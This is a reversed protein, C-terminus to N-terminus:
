ADRLMVIERLKGDLQYIQRYKEIWLSVPNSGSPTYGGWPEFMSEISPDQNVCIRAAKSNVAFLQILDRDHSLITDSLPFRNARLWEWVSDENVKQMWLVPGFIGERVLSDSIGVGEAIAPSFFPGNANGGCLIRGKIGRISEQLSMSHRVSFLPGVDVEPELPHGVRLNMFSEVLADRVKDYFTDKILVGNVSTCTEGNFRTAASTIIRVGEEVPFTDDLYLFGNGNGDLLCQKGSNFAKSFVPMAYRNSGIYHILDVKDSDFCADLFDDAMSNIVMVSWEPPQSKIILEALAAGTSACQLSPRLIVRAGSYLASAIITIGLTLSANQPVVAAVYRFPRDTIRIERDSGPSYSHKVTYGNFSKDHIYVEFDNLFEIASDVVEISDRAIFGTELYTKEYFLDKHIRLQEKLRDLFQLVESVLLTRPRAPLQRLAKSVEDKPVIYVKDTVMGTVPSIVDHISGSYSLEDGILNGLVKKM